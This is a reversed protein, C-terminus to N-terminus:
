VRLARWSLVCGNPVNQREDRPKLNSLTDLLDMLAEPAEEGRGVLRQFRDRCQEQLAKFGWLVASAGFMQIIDQHQLLEAVKQTLKYWQM